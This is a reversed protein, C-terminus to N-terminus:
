RPESKFAPMRLQLAFLAVRGGFNKRRRFRFDLHLVPLPGKQTQALFARRAMLVFVVPLEPILAQAAVGLVCPLRRGSEIM